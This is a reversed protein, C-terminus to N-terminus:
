VEGMDQPFGEPTGAQPQSLAQLAALQQQLSNIYQQAQLLGEDRAVKLQGDVATKDIWSQGGVYAIVVGAVGALALPDIQEALEPNFIAIVGVVFTAVTVWFKRSLLKQRLM